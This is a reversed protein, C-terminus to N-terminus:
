SLRHARGANKVSIENQLRLKLLTLVANLNAFQELSKCTVKIQYKLSNKARAVMARGKSLFVSSGTLSDFSGKILLKIQM